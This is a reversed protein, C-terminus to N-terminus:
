YMNIPNVDVALAVSDEEYNDIIERIDTLRDLKDLKVYLVRRHIDNIRAITADSPGVIRMEKEFNELKLKIEESVRCASDYDKSTILIVVMNYVPPYKMLRRYSMEMNFFGEYDQKAAACIAYHDPQYTQIVVVGSKDGRGARGAAQTLLDFTREGARYDNAFLSLDALIVGVLTVNAFDHGKVIMQTGILIDAEHNLFSSLIDGHAGKRTTTDKDMRITRAGPFLRNIEAEVKETGTGFGGILKSHCSPCETPAKVTYGCYHCMLQEKGHLALAVDCKPCMIAEGCARCSVFSNYGRRNIFLMIQENKNLCEEIRDKLEKSIISRNGLRLEERLDVLKVESLERGDPREPLEWLKYTGLKALAYSAITPTASGLIVSAGSLRALEIATERAHYKPAYDSKYAGDHEEDIIILGLKDCPTFLASRPGIIVDVEHNKAKLLQQYKEGKSQKSNIIAVRDGFHGKFRAVNQYTLAIEPILLITQKGENIVNKICSIYVETKGSGTIGHLLYTNYAGDQRDKVFEQVLANQKETLNINREELHYEAEQTRQKTKRVKERVPMVTKLCNIMTSGYNDRMWKALIIMRGEMKLSLDPIGVIEKMREPDFAPKETIDIVYGKRLANSNGFPVQVQIGVQVEEYLAEPIIYQFTRDIAEHSIDIIIDAYRQSM